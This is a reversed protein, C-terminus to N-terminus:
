AVHIWIGRTVIRSVTSGAVGYRRALEVGSVGADHDARM